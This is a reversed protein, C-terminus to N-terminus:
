NLNLVAYSAVNKKRIDAEPGLLRYKKLEV